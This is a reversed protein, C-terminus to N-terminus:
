EERRSDKRGTETRSCGCEVRKPQEGVAGQGEGRGGENRARAAVGEFESKRWSKGGEHLVVALLSPGCSEHLLPSGSTRRAEVELM